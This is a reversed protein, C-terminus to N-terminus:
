DLGDQYEADTESYFEQENSEQLWNRRIYKHTSADAARTDWSVIDGDSCSSGIQTKVSATEPGWTPVDSYSGEIQHYWSEIDEGDLITALEDISTAAKIAAATNM